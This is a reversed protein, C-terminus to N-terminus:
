VREVTAESIPRIVREIQRGANRKAVELDYHMQLNMWFQPSNGFFQALRLATDASIARDGNVIGTIRNTPVGVAKALAYSTVGLEKLFEVSLIKGPHIPLHKAMMRVQRDTTTSLKSRFLMAVEGCSVCGTNITSGSATSVM